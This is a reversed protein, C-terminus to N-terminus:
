VLWLKTEDASKVQDVAELGFIRGVGIREFASSSEAIRRLLLISYAQHFSWFYGLGFGPVDVTTETLPLALVDLLVPESSAVLDDISVWGCLVEPFQSLAIKRWYERTRTGPVTISGTQLNQESDIEYGSLSAAIDLDSDSDFLGDIRVSLLKGQMVLTNYQPTVFRDAPLIRGRFYADITLDSESASLQEDVSTKKAGLFESLTKTTRRSKPMRRHDQQWVVPHIVSAWSWTPIGSLRQGPCGSDTEWLLGVIIDGAWMGSLYITYWDQEADISCNIALSFEESIGALATLRDESIKTLRLSSYTHVAFRWKDFISRCSLELFNQSFFDNLSISADRTDLNTLNFDNSATTRPNFRQCQFFCATRTFCIMRRSLIWEQFIWGRRLLESQAIEQDYQERIDSHNVQRVYFYGKHIGERDRYPLRVLNPLSEQDCATFLGTERTVGFGAVTFFSNQYYTAMRAAEVIWDQESDQIICLSDIWVFPIGMKLALYFADEFHSPLYELGEGRLRESYNSQLTSANATDPQIWRHTLTIYKGRCGGTEKLTLVRAGDSDLSVEICRNPLDTAEPNLLRSGSFSTRCEEHNEQCQQLWSSLMQIHGDSGTETDLLRGAVDGNIAAPSDEDALIQFQCLALDNRRFTTSGIAWLRLLGLPDELSSTNNNDKRNYQSELWSEWRESGQLYIWEPWNQLVAIVGQKRGQPFRAKILLSCFPCGSEAASIASLLKYGRVPFKVPDFAQIDFAQCTDCLEM